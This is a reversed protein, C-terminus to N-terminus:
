YNQSARHKVNVVQVTINKSNWLNDRYLTICVISILLQLKNYYTMNWFTKVRKAVTDRNLSVTKSLTVCPTMPKHWATMPTILSLNGSSATGILASGSHSPVTLRCAGWTHIKFKTPLNHQTCNLRYEKCCRYKDNLSIPSLYESQWTRSLMEESASVEFAEMSLANQIFAIYAMNLLIGIYQTCYTSTIM